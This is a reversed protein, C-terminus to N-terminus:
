ICISLRSCSFKVSYRLLSFVSCTHLSQVLRSELYLPWYYVVTFICESTKKKIISVLTQTQQLIGTCYTIPSHSKLSRVSFILGGTNMGLGSVSTWLIFLLCVYMYYNTFVSGSCHKRQVKTCSSTSSTSVSKIFSGLIPPSEWCVHKSTPHPEPAM